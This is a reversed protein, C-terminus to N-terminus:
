SIWINEISTVVWQHNTYKLRIRYGVGGYVDGSVDVDISAFFRRVRSNKIVFQHDAEERNNVFRPMNLAKILGELVENELVDNSNVMEFYILSDSTIVMSEREIVAEIASVYCPEIDCTNPLVAYAFLAALVIASIIFKNKM